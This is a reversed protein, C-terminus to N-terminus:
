IIGYKLGVILGGDEWFFIQRGGAYAVREREIGPVMGADCSLTNQTEDLGWGHEHALTERLGIDSPYPSEGRWGQNGLVFGGLHGLRRWEDWFGRRGERPLPPRRGGNDNNGNM